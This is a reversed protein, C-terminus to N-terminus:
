TFIFNSCIKLDVYISDVREMILVLFFILELDEDGSWDDEEDKNKKKCSEFCSITYGNMLSISM